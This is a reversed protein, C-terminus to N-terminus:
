LINFKVEILTKNFNYSIELKYRMPPLNYIYECFGEDYKKIKSYVQNEILFYFEIYIDNFTINLHDPYDIDRSYLEDPNDIIFQVGKDIEDIFHQYIDLDDKINRKYDELQSFFPIVIGLFIILVFIGFGTLLSKELLNTMYTNQNFDLFKFM